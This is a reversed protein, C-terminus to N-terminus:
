QLSVKSKLEVMVRGYQGLRGELTPTRLGRISYTGMKVEEKVYLQTSVSTAPSWAACSGFPPYYLHLSIANIYKRPNTIRHLGLSNNMYSVQGKLYFKIAFPKTDTISEGDYSFREEKLTGSLPMLICSECPHDHIKSQINPNWCLLLLTYNNNAAILNRTYPKSSDFLSYKEIEATDAKFQHIAKMLLSRKLQVLDDKSDDNSNAQEINNEFLQAADTTSEFAKFCHDLKSTLSVFCNTGLLEDDLSM